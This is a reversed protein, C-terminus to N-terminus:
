VTASSLGHGQVDSRGTEMERPSPNCTYLETSPQYSKSGALYARPWNAPMGQEIKGQLKDITGLAEQGSLVHAAIM